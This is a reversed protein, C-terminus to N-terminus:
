SKEIEMIDSAPSSQLRSKIWYVLIAPRILVKPLDLTQRTIGSTISVIYSMLYLINIELMYYSMSLFIFM